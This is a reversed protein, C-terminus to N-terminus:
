DEPDGALARAAAADDADFGIEGVQDANSEQGDIWRRHAEWAAQRTTGIARGIDSWSAGASRATRITLQRGYGAKRAVVEQLALLELAEARGLQAGSPDDPDALAERTRLEELRAVASTLTSTRELETIDAM